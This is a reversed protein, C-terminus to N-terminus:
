GIKRPTEPTHTPPPPPPSVLPHACVWSAWFRTQFKQRQADFSHPTHPDNWSERGGIEVTRDNTKTLWFLLRKKWGFFFHSPFFKSLSLTFSRQPSPSVLIFPRTEFKHLLYHHVVRVTVWNMKKSNRWVTKENTELSLCFIIVSIIQIM